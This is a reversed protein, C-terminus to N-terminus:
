GEQGLVGATAPNDPPGPQDSVSFHDIDRHRNLIGLQPGRSHAERADFGVPRGVGAPASDGSVVVAGARGISRKEIAVLRQQHERLGSRGPPDVAPDVPHIVPCDYRHRAQRTVAVIVEAEDPSAPWALAVSWGRCAVGQHFLRCIIGHPWVPAARCRSFPAPRACAATTERCQSKKGLAMANGPYQRPKGAAAPPFPAWCPTEDVTQLAKAPVQKGHKHETDKITQSITQGATRRIQVNNQATVPGSNDCIALEEIGWSSVFQMALCAFTIQKTPRIGCAFAQSASLWPICRISDEGGVQMDIPVFRNCKSCGPASQNSQQAGNFRKCMRRTTCASQVM